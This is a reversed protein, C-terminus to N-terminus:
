PTNFDVGNDENEKRTAALDLSDLPIKKLVPSKTLDILNNGVIAYNRVEAKHGDRYVLTTAPSDDENAVVPPNPKSPSPELEAVEQHRGDFYHHGYRSPDDPRASQDDDRTVDQEQAADQAQAQPAPQVQDADVYPELPVYYGYFPQAYIVPGGGRRHEHHPHRSTTAILSGTTVSAPTGRLRGDTAPSTVSAPVGHLEIGGSRQAPLAPVLCLSLGLAVTFAAM